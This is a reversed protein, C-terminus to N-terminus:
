YPGQSVPAVAEQGFAPSCTRVHMARNLRSLPEDVPDSGVEVTCMSGGLVTDAPSEPAYEM